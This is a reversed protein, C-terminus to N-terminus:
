DASTSRREIPAWDKLDFVMANDEPYFQGAVKCGKEELNWGALTQISDKLDTNNWRVGARASRGDRLFPRAGQAYEDCPVVALRLSPKDVLVRVYAPSGLKEVVTKNFNVGDKTVSLSPVGTVYPMIEFSDLLGM